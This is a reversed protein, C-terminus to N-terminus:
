GRNLWWFAANLATAFAVWGLYPLLLWAAPGDHRKVRRATAAILALLVVIEALAIDPRKLGFFLGTWAFNFVWQGAFLGLAVPDRRLGGVRWVRWASIGILVYIVTWTPGFLWGPPTWSPRRIKFYWADVPWIAGAGGAALSLLLFLPLVLWNWKHINPAASPASNSIM